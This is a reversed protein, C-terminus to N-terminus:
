EIIEVPRGTYTERMFLVWHLPIVYEKRREELELRLRDKYFHVRWAKYISTPLRTKVSVWKAYNRRWDDVKIYVPETINQSLNPTQLFYDKNWGEKALVFEPNSHVEKPYLLLPKIVDMMWPEFRDFNM